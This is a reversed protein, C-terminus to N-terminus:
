ATVDMLPLSTVTLTNSWALEDMSIKLKKSLLPTFLVMILLATSMTGSASKCCGVPMRAALPLVMVLLAEMLLTKVPMSATLLLVMVLEPLMVGSDPPFPM